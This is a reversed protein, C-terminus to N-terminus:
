EVNLIRAVKKLISQRWNAAKMAVKASIQEMTACVQSLPLDVASFYPLTM